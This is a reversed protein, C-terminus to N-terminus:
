VHPCLVVRTCIDRNCHRCYVGVYTGAYTTHMTHLFVSEKGTISSETSDGTIVNHSVSLLNSMRFAAASQRNRTTGCVLCCRFITWTVTSVLVRRYVMMKNRRYFSAHFAHNHSHIWQLCLTHYVVLLYRSYRYFTSVCTLVENETHMYGLAECIWRYIKWHM